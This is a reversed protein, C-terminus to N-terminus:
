SEMSEFWPIHTWDRTLSILDWISHPTTLFFFFFLFLFHTFHICTFASLLQNLGTTQNMTSCWYHTKQSYMCLVKPLLAYLFRHVIWSVEHSDIIIEFLVYKLFLIALGLLNSGLIKIRQEWQFSFIYSLLCDDNRNLLKNIM